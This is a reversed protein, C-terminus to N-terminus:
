VARTVTNALGDANLSCAGAPHGGNRVCVARENTTAVSGQHGALRVGSRKTM